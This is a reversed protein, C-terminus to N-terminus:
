HWAATVEDAAVLTHSVLNAHVLIDLTRMGVAILLDATEARDRGIM